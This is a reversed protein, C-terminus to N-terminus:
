SASPLLAGILKAGRSMFAKYRPVHKKGVHKTIVIYTNIATVYRCPLNGEILKRDFNM